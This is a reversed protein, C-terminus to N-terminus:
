GVPNCDIVNLRIISLNKNMHDKIQLDKKM